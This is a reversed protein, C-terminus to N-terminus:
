NGLAAAAAARMVGSCHAYCDSAVYERGTTKWVHFRFAHTDAHPYEPEHFTGCLACYPAPRNLNLSSLDRELQNLLERLRRGLRQQQITVAQLGRRARRLNDIDGADRARSVADAYNAHREVLQLMRATLRQFDKARESARFYLQERLNM